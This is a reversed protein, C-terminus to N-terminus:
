ILPLFKQQKLCIISVNVPLLINSQQNSIKEFVTHVVWMFRSVETVKLNVPSITVGDLFFSNLYGESYSEDEDECSDVGVSFAEKMKEPVLFDFM